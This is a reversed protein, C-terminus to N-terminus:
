LTTVICCKSVVMRMIMIRLLRVSAASSGTLGSDGRFLTRLYKSKMKVATNVNSIIM